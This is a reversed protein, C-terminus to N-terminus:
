RNEAAKRWIPQDIAEESKLDKQKMVEETEDSRGSRKGLENGTKKKGKRRAVVDCAM